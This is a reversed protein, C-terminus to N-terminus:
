ADDENEEAKGTPGDAEDEEVYPLDRMTDTVEDDTKGMARLLKPLNRKARAVYIMPGPPNWVGHLDSPGMDLIEAVRARGLQDVADGISARVDHTQPHESEPKPEGCTPCVWSPASM